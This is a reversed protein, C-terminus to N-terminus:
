VHTFIKQKKEEKTHTHTYTRMCVCKNVILLQSSKVNFIEFWPFYFSM